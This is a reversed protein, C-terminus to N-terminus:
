LGLMVYFLEAVADSSFRVRGGGFYARQMEIFERNYEVFETNISMDDRTVSLIPYQKNFKCKDTYYEIGANDDVWLTLNNGLIRINVCQKAHNPKEAIFDSAINMGSTDGLAYSDYPTGAFLKGLVSKERNSRTESSASDFEYYIGRNKDKHKKVGYPIHFYENYPNSPRDRNGLLIAWFERRRFITECLRAFLEPESMGGEGGKYLARSLEIYEDFMIVDADEISIGKVNNLDSCYGIHVFVEGHQEDDSLYIRNKHIKMQSHKSYFEPYVNSVSNILGARAVLDLQITSRRLYVFKHIPDGTVVGNYARQICKNLWVTTKGRSRAGECIYMHYDHNGIDWKSGLYYQSGM